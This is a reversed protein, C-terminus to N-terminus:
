GLTISITLRSALRLKENEAILEAYKSSSNTTVPHFFVQAGSPIVELIRLIEVGAITVGRVV